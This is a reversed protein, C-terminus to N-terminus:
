HPNARSPETRGAREVEVFWAYNLGLSRLGGDSLEVVVEDRSRECCRVTQGEELGIKSCHDRVLGFLIQRIVYDRGDNPPVGGLSDSWSWPRRSRTGRRRRDDVGRM